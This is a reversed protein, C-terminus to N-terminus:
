LGGLGPLGLGASLGQLRDAALTQSQELASNVAVVLLDQLMERDEQAAALAEPSILVHHLRQQGDVVVTVAEGGATVTIRENALEAQVRQMEENMKALKEALGGTLGAPLGLGKRKGM